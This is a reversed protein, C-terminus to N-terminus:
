AAGGSSPQAFRPGPPGAALDLEWQAALSMLYRYARPSVSRRLAMFPEFVRRYTLVQYCAMEFAVDNDAIGAHIALALNEWHALVYIIDHYLEANDRIATELEPQTIPETRGTVGFARELRKRAEILEPRRSLSYDLAEKRRARRYELRTNRAVQALQVCVAIAAVMTGLMALVQVWDSLGV